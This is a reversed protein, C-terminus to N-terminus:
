DMCDWGAAVCFLAMVAIVPIIVPLLIWILVPTHSASGFTRAYEPSNKTAADHDVVALPLQVDMEQSPLVENGRVVQYTLKGKLLHEGLAANPLAKVKFRVALKAELVRIRDDQYAFRTKNDPPFQFDSVLIGDLSGFELKLPIVKGGRNRPSVILDSGLSFLIAAKETTGRRITQLQTFPQYTTQPVSAETPNSQPNQTAPTTLVSNQSWMLSPVLLMALVSRWM